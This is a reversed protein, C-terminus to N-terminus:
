SARGVTDFTNDIVSQAVRFTYELDTSVAGSLRSAELSRISAERLNAVVLAADEERSVVLRIVQSLMIRLAVIEGAIRRDM